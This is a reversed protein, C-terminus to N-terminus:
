SELSQKWHQSFRIEDTAECDIHTCAGDGNEYAPNLKREIALALDTGDEEHDVEHDEEDVDDPTAERAIKWQAFKLSENKSWESPVYM